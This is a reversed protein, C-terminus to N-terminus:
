IENMLDRFVVEAVSGRERSVRLPNDNDGRGRHKQSLVSIILKLDSGSPRRGRGLHCRKKFREFRLLDSSSICISNDSIMGM